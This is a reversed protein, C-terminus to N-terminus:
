GDLVARIAELLAESHRAREAAAHFAQEYHDRRDIAQNLLATQEALEARVRDYEAEEVLAGGGGTKSVLCVLGARTRPGPIGDVPGAPCNLANAARQIARWPEDPAIGTLVLSNITPIAAYLRDGPCATAVVDRHGGTFRDGWWERTLGHHVLGALLAVLEASPDNVTFDGMVAIGHSVSNRGKTHGGAVGAGRGEYVTLTDPDVVFSYGIDSWGKVDMHFQQIARMGGPGSENGATHHLYLEPTPTAIGHRRLRDRAGWEARSVITISM